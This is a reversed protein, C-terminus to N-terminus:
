LLDAAEGACQRALAGHREMIDVTDLEKVFWGWGVAAVDIKSILASNVAFSFAEEEAEKSTEITAKFAELNQESVQRVISRLKGLQALRTRHRFRMKERAGRWLPHAEMPAERGAEMAAEMEADKEGSKRRAVRMKTAFTTDTLKEFNVLQAEAENVDGDCAELAKQVREPKCRHRKM